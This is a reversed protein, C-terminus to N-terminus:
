ASRRLEADLNGFLSRWGEERMPPGDAGEFFAAQETYTLRTGRGEPALEVTGLSASIGKDGITMTYAFVIRHDPVIDLYTTDNRIETGPSPAGPPGGEMRFRSQERGGVRFDLTFEGAETGKGPSFWRRKTAGDAFAAFVRSPAVPYTREIAFTSYIVPTTTM